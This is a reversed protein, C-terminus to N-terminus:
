SLEHTTTQKHIEPRIVDDRHSSIKEFLFRNLETIWCFLSFLHLRKRSLRLCVFQLKIKDKFVCVSGTQVFKLVIKSQVLSFFFSSMWCGSCASRIKFHCSHEVSASYKHKNFQSITQNLKINIIVHEMNQHHPHHLHHEPRQVRNQGRTTSQCTIFSGLLQLWCPWRLSLCSSSAKRFVVFLWDSANSIDCSM